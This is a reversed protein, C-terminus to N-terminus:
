KISDLINIPIFTQYTLLNQTSNPTYFLFPIFFDIFNTERFDMIKKKLEETAM